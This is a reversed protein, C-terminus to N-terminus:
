SYGINVDDNRFNNYNKGQLKIFYKNVIYDSPYYRLPTKEFNDIVNRDINKSQKIQIPVEDNTIGDTGM